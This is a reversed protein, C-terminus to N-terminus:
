RSGHPGSRSDDRRARQQDRQHAAGIRHRLLRDVGALEIELKESRRTRTIRGRDFAQHTGPRRDLRAIADASSGQQFCGAAAVGGDHARQERRVRVDVLRIQLL